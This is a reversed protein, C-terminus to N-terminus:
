KKTKVKKRQKIVAKAHKEEEFCDKHHITGYRFQSLDLTGYANISDYTKYIEAFVVRNNSDIYYVCDGIKYKM